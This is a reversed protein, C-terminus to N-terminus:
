FDFLESLFPKRKQDRHNSGSKYSEDNDSDSRTVHEKPSSELLKDLEGRGLWVGRCHPCYDIEIDKRESMKLELVCQPCKM